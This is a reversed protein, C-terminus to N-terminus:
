ALLDLLEHLSAIRTLGTLHARDGHPDMLIPQLGANRAGGVDNIVSDGVYAVREAPLGLAALASDFIRPDPKAVGVIESDVVCVVPVGMGPGVQCVGRYRLTHEIQGSANSVVGIPVGARHLRALASVSEALPHTWLYSSFIAALAVVAADLRDDAVGVTRCFAERYLTWDPVDVTTADGAALLEDELAGIAAWHARVHRHHDTTAGFPALTIATQAPDPTVLVGGADFLVADFPATM